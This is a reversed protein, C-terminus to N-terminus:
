LHSKPALKGSGDKLTSKLQWDQKWSQTVDELSHTQAPLPTGAM